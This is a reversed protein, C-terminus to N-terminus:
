PRASFHERGFAPHLRAGCLRLLEFARQNMTFGRSDVQWSWLSRAADIALRLQDPRWIESTVGVRVSQVLSM